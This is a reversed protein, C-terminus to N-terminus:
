NSSEKSQLILSKLKPREVKWVRGLFLGFIFTRPGVLFHHFKSKLTFDMVKLPHHAYSHGQYIRQACCTGNKMVWIQTRKAFIDMNQCEFNIIEGWGLLGEIWKDDAEMDADYHDVSVVPTELHVKVDLASLKPKTLGVIRSLWHKVKTHDNDYHRLLTNDYKLRVKVTVSAPLSGSFIAQPLDADDTDEDDPEPLADNGVDWNKQPVDYTKGDSSLILELVGGAERYSAIEVLVEADGYCGVITVESDQDNDLSGTFLCPTGKDAILHIKDKLGNEFVAEIENTKTWTLKTKSEDMAGESQRRIRLLEVPDTPSHFTIRSTKDGSLVLNILGDPVKWSAISVTTETDKCGSVSM